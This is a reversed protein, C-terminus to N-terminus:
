DATVSRVRLSDPGIHGSADPSEPLERSARQTAGSAPSLTRGSSTTQRHLDQVFLGHFLDAQLPLNRIHLRSTHNLHSQYIMEKHEPKLATRIHKHCQDKRHILSCCSGSFLRRSDVNLPITIPLRLAPILIGKLNRLKTDPKSNLRDKWQLDIEM